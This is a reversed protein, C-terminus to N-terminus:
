ADGGDESAAKKAKGKGRGSTAKGESKKSTSKAKGKTAPAKEVDGNDATGESGENSTPSEEPTEKEPPDNAKEWDEDFPMHYKQKITFDKRLPYHEYDEPMLVRRLDPHGDFIIGMMDYAEREHWAGSPWIEATTPLHPDDRPITTCLEVQVHHEFSTAQYALDFSDLRDVSSICSCCVFTCEDRLFTAVEQIRDPAVTLRADKLGGGYTRLMEFTEAEQPLGERIREFLQVWPSDGFERDGTM